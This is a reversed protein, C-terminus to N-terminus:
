SKLFVLIEMYSLKFIRIVSEHCCCDFFIREIKLEQIYKEQLFVKEQLTSFVPTAHCHCKLIILSATSVLLKDFNLKTERVLKTM